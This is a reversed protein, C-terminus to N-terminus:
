TRFKNIHMTEGQWKVPRGYGTSDYPSVIGMESLVESRERQATM